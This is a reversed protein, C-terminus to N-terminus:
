ETIKRRKELRSRIRGFGIGALTFYVPLFMFLYKSRGEFLLMYLVIGLITIEPM